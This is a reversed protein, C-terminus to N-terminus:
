PKIVDIDSDGFSQSAAFPCFVSTRARKQYLVLASDYTMPHACVFALLAEAAARSPIAYAHGGYLKVAGPAAWGTHPLVARKRDVVPLAGLYLIDADAPVTALAEHIRSNIAIDDEFVVAPWVNRILAARIAIRHSAYCGLRALKNALPQRPNHRFGALASEDRARGDVAKIFELKDENLGAARFTRLFAEKRDTRRELNICFFISMTHTDTQTM